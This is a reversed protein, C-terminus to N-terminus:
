EREQVIAERLNKMIESIQYNESDLVNKMEQYSNINRNQQVKYALHDIEKALNKFIYYCLYDAYKHEKSVIELTLENIM